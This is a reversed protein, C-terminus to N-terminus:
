PATTRRGQWPQLEFLLPFFVLPTLMVAYLIFFWHRLTALALAFALGLVLSWLRQTRTGSRLYALAGFFVTLGPLLLLFTMVPDEDHDVGNLVILAAVYLAFSLRTWDERTRHYLSQLPPVLRLMLIILVASIAFAGLIVAFAFVRILFVEFPGTLGKPSTAYLWQNSTNLIWAILLLIGFGLYPFVWRRWNTLWGAVLGFLSCLLFLSTQVRFFWDPLSNAPFPYPYALWLTFPGFLFFPFLGIATESWSLPRETLPPQLNMSMSGKSFRAWHSLALSMPMDRLELGCLRLIALPGSQAAEELAEAFVARM